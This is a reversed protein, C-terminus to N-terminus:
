LNQDQCLENFKIIFVDRQNKLSEKEKKLREIQNYLTKLQPDLKLTEKDEQYKESLKNLNHSLNFVKGELQKNELKLTKIIDELEEIYSENQGLKFKLEKIDEM